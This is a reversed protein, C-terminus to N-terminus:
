LEEFFRKLCDVDCFHVVGDEHLLEHRNDKVWVILKADRRSLTMIVMDVDDTHEKGCGNCVYLSKKM